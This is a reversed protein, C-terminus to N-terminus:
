LPVSSLHNVQRLFATFLKIVNPGPSIEEAVDLTNTVSTANEEGTLARTSNFAPTSNLAPMSTGAHASSFVSERKTFVKEKRTGERERERQLRAREKEGTTRFIPFFMTSKKGWGHFRFLILLYCHPNKKLEQELFFLIPPPFFGIESM